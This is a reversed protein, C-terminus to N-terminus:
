CKLGFQVIFALIAATRFPAGRANIVMSLAIGLLVYLVSWAAGFAWGPPQAAPKQLAQFWRNEDASGSIQASLFGLLVILPVIFLIWRLLSMRLQGRSAIQNM